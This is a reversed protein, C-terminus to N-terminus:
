LILVHQDSDEESTGMIYNNNNKYGIASGTEFINGAIIYNNKIPINKYQNLYEESIYSINSKSNAEAPVGKPYIMYNPCKKAHCENVNDNKMDNSNDTKIEGINKNRFYLKTNHNRDVSPWEDFDIEKKLFGNKLTNRNYTQNLNKKFINKNRIQTQTKRNFKNYIYNTESEPSPTKIIKRINQCNKTM